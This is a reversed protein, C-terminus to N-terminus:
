AQTEIFAVPNKVRRGVNLISLTVQSYDRRNGAGTREAMFSQAVPVLLTIMSPRSMIFIELNLKLKISAGHISFCLNLQYPARPSNGGCSNSRSVVIM